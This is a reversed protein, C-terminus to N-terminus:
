LPQSLFQSVPRPPHRRRFTLWTWKVRRRYSCGSMVM